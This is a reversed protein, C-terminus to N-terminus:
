LTGKKDIGHLFAILGEAIRTDGTVDNKGRRWNKWEIVEISSWTSDDRQYCIFNAESLKWIYIELSVLLVPISISYFWTMIIM